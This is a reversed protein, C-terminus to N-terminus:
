KPTAPAANVDTQSQSRIKGGLKGQRGLNKLAKFVDRTTLALGSQRVFEKHIREMEDTYPLDDVSLDTLAYLSELLRKQEDSLETHPRKGAPYIYVEDLPVGGFVSRSLNAPTHALHWRLVDLLEHAVAEGGGVLKIDSVSLWPDPIRRLTDAVARYAELPGKVDVDNSVVYLVWRATEPPRIWAAATVDFGVQTLAEILRAGDDIQNGVLTSTDM